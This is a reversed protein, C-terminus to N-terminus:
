IGGNKDDVNGNVGHLDLNNDSAQRAARHNVNIVTECFGMLKRAIRHAELEMLKDPHTRRIEAILRDYASNHSSEPM